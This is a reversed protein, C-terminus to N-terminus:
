GTSMDQSELGSGRVGFTGALYGNTFKNSIRQSHTRISYHNALDTRAFGDVHQLRHVSTVIPRQRGTM